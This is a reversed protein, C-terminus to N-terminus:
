SAEEWPAAEPPSPEAAHEPKDLAPGAVGYLLVELMSELYQEDLKAQDPLHELLHKKAAKFQWWSFALAGAMTMLLVPHVDDRIVGVRQANQMRDIVIHTLEEDGPWRATSSELMTWTGLRVLNPHERYFNFLTRMGELFFQGPDAGPALQPSQAEKYRDVVRRKVAVYLDEKNGFHHHILAKSTASAEAVARISTAAFGKEAFEREAADLIKARSRASDRSRKTSNELIGM